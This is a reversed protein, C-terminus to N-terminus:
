IFIMWIARTNLLLKLIMLINSAQVKENKQNFISIKAEYPDKACSYIKDIDPQQSRLNFLLNTKGSSCGGIVLLRYAYDSIEPWNSNHEKIDEKMIYDFNIM